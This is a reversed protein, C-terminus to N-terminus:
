PVLVLGGPAKPKKHAVTWDQNCQKCWRAGASKGTKTIGLNKGSLAHGRKCHTQVKRGRKKAIQPSSKAQAAKKHGNSPARTALTKPAPNDRFTQSEKERAANLLIEVRNKVMSAAAKIDATKADFGPMDNLLSWEHVHFYEIFDKEKGLRQYKSGPASVVTLTVPVGCHHILHWVATSVKFDTPVAEQGSIYGAFRKVGQESQGVYIPFSSAQLHGFVIYVIENPVDPEAFPFPFTWSKQSQSAQIHEM